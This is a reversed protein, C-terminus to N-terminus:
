ADGKWLTNLMKVLWVGSILWVVGWVTAQATLGYLVSGMGFLTAYVFACGLVWGLLQQPLSDPSPGVGAKQPIGSWGPGAPRVLRYFAILTADSEPKTLLTTGVWALTTAGVTGLLVINASVGYGMKGAVFFGVAVIFSVAMAAIESWANIRWWFWRLLYLLGTGAGISLLLEFSARASDLVFTIGAAILMLLATVLRGTWM